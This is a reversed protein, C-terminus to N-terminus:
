AYKKHHNPTEDGLYKDPNQMMRMGDEDLVPYRNVGPAEGTTPTGGTQQLKAFDPSLALLVDAKDDMFIADKQDEHVRVYGKPHIRYNDNDDTPYYLSELFQKVTILGSLVHSRLQDQYKDSVLTMRDIHEYNWSFTYGSRHPAIFPLVKANIFEEIHRMDPKIADSMAAIKKVEMQSDDVPQNNGDKQDYVGILNPDIKFEQCILAAMNYSIVMDPQQTSFSTINFAAPLVKTRFGQHSGMGQKNWLEVFEDLEEESYNPANPDLTLIASPKADNDLYARITHINKRDLNVWEMARDMPSKGRWDSELSPIKDWMLLDPSIKYDNTDGPPSYHLYQWSGSEIYPECYMSNLIRIGGPIMTNPIYEKEMWVNGHVLLQTLWRKFLNEDYQQFHWKIMNDFARLKVVEGKANKITYKMDLLQNCRFDICRMATTSAAAAYARGYPTEEFNTIVGQFRPSTGDARPRSTLPTEDQPPRFVSNIVFRLDDM